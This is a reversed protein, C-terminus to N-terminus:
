QPKSIGFHEELKSYFEDENLIPVEIKEGLEHIVLKTDTLTVRGRGTPRTILKQKTFPSDASQQHYDCMDLFQIFEVGELAFQYKKIFSIGNASECLELTGNANQTFKYFKNQDMQVEGQKIKKPMIFGDGFGVDVLWDEKGLSVVIAMHDFEPGLSGDKGYVRASILKCNYNLQFLLHYFLGNLEYCFGGRGNEAVIKKYFLAPDLVIKRGWHIDLNEFPVALLHAKHLMRLYLLDPQPLKAVGIRNLYGALDIKPLKPRNEFINLQGAGM